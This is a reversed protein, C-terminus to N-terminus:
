CHVSLCVCLSPLPDYWTLTLSCCLALRNGGRSETTTRLCMVCVRCCLTCTLVSPHISPHVETSVHVFRPQHKLTQNMNWKTQNVSKRGVSWTEGLLWLLVFSEFSSILLWSIFCLFSSVFLLLFFSVFCFLFFVIFSFSVLFPSLFLWFLFFCGFFFSHFFCSCSVIFMVFFFSVNLLFFFFLLLLFLCSFWYFFGAVLDFGNTGKESKESKLCQQLCKLYRVYVNRCVICCIHLQNKAM